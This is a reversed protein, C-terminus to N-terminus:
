RTRGVRRTILWRQDVPRSMCRALIIPRSDCSCQSLYSIYFFRLGTTSVIDNNVPCSLLRGAKHPIVLNCASRCLRGVITNMKATYYYTQWALFLFFLQFIVYVGEGLMYTITHFFMSRLDFERWVSKNNRSFIYFFWM